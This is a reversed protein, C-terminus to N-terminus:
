FLSPRAKTSPVSGERRLRRYAERLHKPQLPGTDGCQKRVDLAAEVVDGVFLKTLGKVAILFPDSSAIKGFVPNIATLVRKFKDKKLDSRRYQEYRRLQNPGFRAVQEYEHRRMANVDFDEEEEDDDENDEGTEGARGDGGTSRDLAGQTGIPQNPTRKKQDRGYEEGAERATGSKKSDEVEPDDQMIPGTEAKAIESRRGYDSHAEKRVHEIDDDEGPDMATRKRKGASMADKCVNEWDAASERLIHQNRLNSREARRGNEADGGLSGKTLEGSRRAVGKGV